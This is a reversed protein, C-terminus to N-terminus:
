HMIKPVVNGGRRRIDWDRIFLFRLQLPTRGPQLLIGSRPEGARGIKGFDKSVTVTFLGWQRGSLFHTPQGQDPGGPDIRNNPGAPIDLDQKLNRNYYGLLFSFSGDQNRFWGEYAGTVSQGTAHLPELPLDQARAFAASGLAIEMCLLLITSRWQM